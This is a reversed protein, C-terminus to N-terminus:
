RCYKIEVSIESFFFIWLRINDKLILIDSMRVVQFDTTEIDSAEYFGLLIIITILAVLM